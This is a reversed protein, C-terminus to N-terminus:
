RGTTTTTAMRQRLKRMAEHAQGYDPRLDLSKGLSAKAEELRGAAAYAVGLNYWGPADGPRLKTVREFAPIAERM